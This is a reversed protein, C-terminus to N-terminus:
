AFPNSVLAAERQEEYREKLSNLEAAFARINPEWATFFEPEPFVRVVVNEIVPNHSVLDWWKRGTVWLSSQVQLRYKTLLKTPDMWYSMHVSASPCKIELGGDDGVLGDPSCGFTEADNTIFGVQRVEHGREVEYWGRAQDELDNGREMFASQAESDSEGTVFEALLRAM